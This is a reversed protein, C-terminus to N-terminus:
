LNIVKEITIQYVQIKMKKLDNVCFERINKEDEPVQISAPNWTGYKSNRYLIKVTKM